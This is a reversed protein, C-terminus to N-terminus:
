ATTDFERATFSGTLSITSGDVSPVSFTMLDTTFAPVTFRTTWVDDTAAIWVHTNINMRWCWGRVAQSLWVTKRVGDKKSQRTPVQMCCTKLAGCPM